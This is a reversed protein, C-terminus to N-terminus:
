KRTMRHSMVMAGPIDPNQPNPILQERRPDILVDMAQMPIAGLLVMDGMVMAGTFAHRGFVEVKIPGVYDVSVKRGDAVTVIRQEIASLRLQKAVLSPICLDISGSDVLANADVEELDPKAANALRIHQFITGM